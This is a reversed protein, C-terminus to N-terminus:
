NRCLPFEAQQQQTSAAAQLEPIDFYMSIRPPPLSQRAIITRSIGTATPSTSRRTSTVSMSASSPSMVQAQLRIPWIALCEVGSRLPVLPDKSELWHHPHHPCDRWLVLKHLSFRLFRVLRSVWFLCPQLHFSKSVRAVSVIKLWMRTLHARCFIRTHTRATLHETCMTSEPVGQHRPCTRTRMSHRARRRRWRCPEWTKLSVECLNEQMVFMVMETIM